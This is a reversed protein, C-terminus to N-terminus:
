GAQDLAHPYDDDASPVPLQQECRDAEDVPEVSAAHNVSGPQDHSLPPNLPAQQDLLDAQPIQDAPDIRESPM